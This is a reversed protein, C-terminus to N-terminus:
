TQSDRATKYIIENTDRKKNWMYAIEYSTQRDGDSRGRKTHCGRPMCGSFITVRFSAPAGTNAAASKVVALVHSCGVHGDTSSWFFFM